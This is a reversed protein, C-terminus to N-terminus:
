ITLDPYQGDLPLFFLWTQQTNANALLLLIATNFFQSVFISVMIIRAEKSETYYGIKKILMINITRIVINIVVIGFTVVQSLALAKYKDVTFDKCIDTSDPNM